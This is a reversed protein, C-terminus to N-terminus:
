HKIVKKTASWNGIQLKLIYNGSPLDSILFSKLYSNQDKELKWEKRLKGNIDFILVRMPGTYSNNIQLNFQDKVPNPYVAFRSEDGEDPLAKASLYNVNTTASSTVTLRETIKFGNIYNYTNVKGSSISIVIKGNGDPTLGTFAGKETSNKYTNVVQLADGIKFQTSLGPNNNRSAYVEIDYKFSPTLGTITLTRQALSYSTYRLVESPASTGGPYSSGNDSIIGADSLVASVASASGNSYKFVSAPSTSAKWNNWESNNYPNAGGYVNVNFTRGEIAPPPTTQDNDATKFDVWNINWGNTVAYIRLIQTGQTLAVVANVTVWNQYAGSQPIDFTALVSGDSKRLQARSGSAPAAVRLSVDYNASKEVQVNYDLWDGGDIWGVNKGGGADSTNETQIGNSQDYDEAEIKGPVPKSAVAAPAVKITIDDTASAGQNDTVTLRMVYTGEVLSSLQPNVIKNNNIVFSAPGSVKTWLYGAISGDPDKSNNGNLQATTVPLTITIDSGASAVPTQNPALAEFEMWNINWGNTLAYIRLTQNGASLTVSTEKTVWNQYGGTKPITLTTLVSGDSKRLQLSAGDAPAALRFGVKYTGATKVNLSYDMWDGPEIYGVNQGGGADSTNETQIGMMGAYGEAEIKGPISKYSVPAAIVKVTIDDYDAAGSNDTVTLRLSYSGETLNSLQPNVIKSNSIGFSAPGSLKTWSYSVISGDPDKSASGNLQVADVPLTLTIDAGAVAVPPQNAPVPPVSGGRSYQLMWEYVNMNNERYNPDYAKTWADHGSANFITKKAKPNPTPSYTNIGNVYDNTYSVPVTPDDSNHFAWVPLNEKAIVHARTPAGFSAGCVPVLAALQRIYSLDNPNGAYEWAVGGGMSLGTLYIRSPDVKYHSKLYGIMQYVEERKPWKAFQPSIVIFRFTKGNVTFSAPFKGQSILKPPGNRLVAPLASANGSGQEGLGHLFILLPYQEGASPNYGQPLYEYYGNTNPAMSVYRPTQVQGDVNLFFLLFFASVAGYFLLTKNKM